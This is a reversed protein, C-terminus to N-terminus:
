IIIYENNPFVFHHLKHCHAPILCTTGNRLAASLANCGSHSCIFHKCHKIVECYEYINKVTIINSFNLPLVEKWFERHNKNNKLNEFNIVYSNDYDKFNDFFNKINNFANPINMIVDKYSQDSYSIDMIIKNSVGFRDTEIIPYYIEPKQSYPEPLSYIREMEEIWFHKFTIFPHIDLGVENTFGAIYPNMEWVLKKIEENRYFMRESIYVCKEGFVEFFRRPITSVQLNDGLGQWRDLVLKM